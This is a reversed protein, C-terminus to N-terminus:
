AYSRNAPTGGGVDLNLDFDLGGADAARNSINPRSHLLHHFRVAEAYHALKHSVSDSGPQVLFRLNGIISCASVTRPESFAHHQRNLRHDIDALRIGLQEVILPGGYGDIPTQAGM